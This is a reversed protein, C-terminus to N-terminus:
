CFKKILKILLPIECIIMILMGLMAPGNGENLFNNMSMLELMLLLVFILIFIIMLGYNTKKNESHIEAKNLEEKDLQNEKEEEESDVHYEIDGCEYFLEIVNDYDEANVELYLVQKGAENEEIFTQYELENLTLLDEVDKKDKQFKKMDGSVKDVSHLKIKRLDKEM